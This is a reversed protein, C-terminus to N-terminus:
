APEPRLVGSRMLLVYCLVGYGLFGIAMPTISGALTRDLLSGLLAGGAIQLAGIVSSATGAVHGVHEMALSNINPVLLAHSGLVVALIVAFPWFPPTGDNLVALAAFVASAVVYATVAWRTVTRTGLRDVITANLLMAVGLAAALGGFIVPFQHGRGFIDSIILESSAIWSTFVGYLATMALAPWMTRPEGLVARTAALLRGVQLPLRDNPDLTEPLRMAWLAVLGVGVACAGFVWRWPAVNVIVQGLAPALIPVIIFVAMIFSMARSMKDGVWTDRIIALSVVRSGAAGVGWLARAAYLATLSPALFSAVAGVLYIVYGLYIARRRGLADALVGYLLQGAALGLFYTTVLGATANDDAALGFEDRIEGFAPLLLDIGLATLAMSFALLAILEREGLLRLAIPRQDPPAPAAPTPAPSRDPASVHCRLSPGSSGAVRRGKAQVTRRVSPMRVPM